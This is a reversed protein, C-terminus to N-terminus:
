TGFLPRLRADCFDPGRQEFGRELWPKLADDPALPPLTAISRVWQFVSWAIFDAYSPAAGGLYPQEALQLRLPQLAERLAPLRAERGAVVDELKRGGLRTERSARFYARDAPDASDHIDLVYMSFLRRSVEFTFWQEFLRIAQIEGASSFIPQDAFTADLYRAIDWSDAVWTAGNELVPVTKFRGGFRPAIETFGLLVHDCALGKHALSYRIRWVFPSASRGNAIRLEYLRLSPDPPSM